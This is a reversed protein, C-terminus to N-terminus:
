PIINFEIVSVFVGAGITKLTTGAPLWMPLLLPDTNQTFPSYDTCCALSSTCTNNSWRETSNSYKLTSYVLSGNVEFGSAVAAKVWQIITPLMDPRGVCHTNYLAGSLATIKWVKGVPVTELSNTVLKAQNFQLTGQSIVVSCILASFITVIFKM